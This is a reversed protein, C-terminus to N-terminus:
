LTSLGYKKTMYMESDVMVKGISKQIKRNCERRDLFLSRQLTTLM